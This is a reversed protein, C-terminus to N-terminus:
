GTVLTTVGDSWRYVDRASDTDEPVLAKSSEFFVTRGDASAAALDSHSGASDGAAHDDSPGSTVLRLTGGASEYVDRRNDADAPLAGEETVFFVRTLDESAKLLRLHDAPTNPTLLTTVGGARSYLDVFSDTDTATLRDTSAFVMRSDDPSIWAEGGSAVHEVSSGSRRYVDYESDTDSSVLRQGAGFVVTAGDATQSSAWITCPLPGPGSPAVPCSPALGLRNATLLRTRGNRRQYLDLTSNTDGPELAATTLFVYSGGDPSPGGDHHYTAGGRHLDLSGTSVLKATGGSFEYVDEVLDTDASVLSEVTESFIRTGDRSAGRYFHGLEWTQGPRSATVLTVAGEDWRYVDDETDADQPVLPGGAQFIIRGGDESVDGVHTFGAAVGPTGGSVLLDQGDEHAYVDTTTDTDAPVLPADTVFVVREGDASIARAFANASTGGTILENAAGRRVYVDFATDTDAPVLAEQTSFVYAGGDPTVPTAPAAWGPAAWLVALGVAVVMGRVFAGM